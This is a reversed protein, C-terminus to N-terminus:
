SQVKMGFFNELKSKIFFLLHFKVYPIDQNEHLSLLFLNFLLFFTIIVLEHCNCPEGGGAGKKKQNWSPGMLRHIRKQILSRKMSRNWLLPSNKKSATRNIFSSIVPQEGSRTEERAPRKRCPGLMSLPRMREARWLSTTQQQWCTFSLGSM